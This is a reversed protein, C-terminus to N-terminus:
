LNFWTGIFSGMLAGNLGLITEVNQIFFAVTMTIMVIGFTLIRFITDPIFAMTQGASSDGTEGAEKQLASYNGKEM